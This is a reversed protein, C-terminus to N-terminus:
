SAQALSEVQEAPQQSCFPLMAKQSPLAERGVLEEEEPLELVVLEADLVVPLVPEVPVCEVEDLEPEVPVCEVELEDDLEDPPVPPVPETVHVSDVKVISLWPM